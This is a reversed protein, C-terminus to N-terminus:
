AVAELVGAWVSGVVPEATVRSEVLRSPGAAPVGPGAVVLPMPEGGHRGTRPCTSHDCTVVIAAGARRAAAALPAILECDAREVAARKAAPERRHAAEDAAGVHVVCRETDSGMRAAARAKEGMDTDVDGTAGVPVEVRAGLLRACGAAAGPGCVVVTREDLVPELDAGDPWVDVWWDGALRAPPRRSGIALLRHGRLVAVHHEPMQAAVVGLAEAGVARMGDAGRVDVRWARQGSPVDIGAAAAEISGRAVPAAPPAGLLTPIGTESGPKLGEPTTCVRAVAGEACLRDLAPTRAAELTSPAGDGGRPPDAAGDLLILVRGVM